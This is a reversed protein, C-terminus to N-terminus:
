AAGETGGSQQDDALVRVDWNGGVTTREAEFGDSLIPLRRLSPDRGILHGLGVVHYDEGDRHRDGCLFMWEGDERAVLLVPRTDAFVHSCVIGRTEETM